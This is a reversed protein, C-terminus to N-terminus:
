PTTMRELKALQNKIEEDEPRLVLYRRSADMAAETQKLSTLCLSLGKLCLLDEPALALCGALAGAAGM